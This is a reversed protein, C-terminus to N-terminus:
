VVQSLGRHSLRGAALGGWGGTRIARGWIPGIGSAEACRITTVVPSRVRSWRGVCHPSTSVPRKLSDSESM